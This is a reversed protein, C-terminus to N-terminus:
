RANAVERNGMLQTLTALVQEFPYLLDEQIAVSLVDQSVARKIKESERISPFILSPDVEDRIAELCMRGELSQNQGTWKDRFPLVGLLDASIHFQKLADNLTDIVELTRTLSGFGKVTLEVPILIQDSAGIVTKTIQSRQPPSDILCVDFADAVSQLKQKLVVAGVGSASLFEQVQDLSDDSPILFLKDHGEVPYIGDDCTVTRGSRDRGTIVEYLTPATPDVDHGLFTTSNHQPDTDIVLVSYGAQILMRAMFLTTTTKGQGGSLSLISLTLM